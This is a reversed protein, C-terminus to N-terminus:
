RALEELAARAGTHDPSVHLAETFQQRAKAADNLGLYGLGSQYHALTRRLRRSQQEGFSTFFDITNQQISQAASDIMRQFVQRAQQRQGLKAMALGRYYDSAGASRARGGSDESAAAARQWAHRAEAGDGTAEYAIGSWYAAEASRNGSRSESPLNDPTSGAAQFDAQAEKHRGEALLRRGRLIHADTWSDAVNLTGGEWVAFRRSGLLEIAKDYKGAFIKLSIARSLSDDRKTVLDWNKELLALRKDPTVGAAAYLEDLESFHLPYKRDLSVAKELQSIAQALSKDGGRHSYGLALNRYLIANDNKLTAAQEWQRLAEGPQWDYLLNGLLYPARGDQPNAKMAARFIDIMEYQFPFCYDASAEQARKFYEGAKSHQNLQQSFYGLYYYVMPSVATSGSARSAAERLVQVGDDRLGAGMYEAATEAATAPFRNMTEAM